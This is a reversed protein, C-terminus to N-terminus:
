YSTLALISGPLALASDLGLIIRSYLADIDCFVPSSQFSTFSLRLVAFGRCPAFTGLSWDFRMETRAELPKENLAEAKLDPPM